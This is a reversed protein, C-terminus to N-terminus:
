VPKRARVHLFLPAIRTQALHPIAEATAKDACPEGLREVTLGVESVLNLWTSLTRHFCPVQFPAVREREDPPLAAFWWRDVRGDIVEFYGGIELARITGDPAYLVQRHPPVFCPHLIAFQVFGGPRLVRQMEAFASRQDPMNMLSMFGVAFDFACDLFPLRIADALVYSIGLSQSREAERAHGLFKPSLDIAHMLAGRQALLRTMSGEGCGVDIGRLGEVPPLMAMFAPVNVYDRHVDFGARIHRTWTDANAEWCAIAKDQMM